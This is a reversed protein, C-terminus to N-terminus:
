SGVLDDAEKAGAPHALDVSGAVGPQLSVDSQLDDCGGEGLIGVPDIPEPAFRLRHGCEGMRVDEGDMIEAEVLARGEGHHLEQLTLRQALSELRSGERGALDRLDASLDRRTKGRSVVLSDHVPIEFRFVHKQGLVPVHLDQVEPQGCDSFGHAVIM